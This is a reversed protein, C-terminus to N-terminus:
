KKCIKSCEKYFSSIFNDINLSERLSDNEILYQHASQIRNFDQEFQSKYNAM